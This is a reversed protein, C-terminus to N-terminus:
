NKKDAESYNRRWKREAKRCSLRLAKLEDNYWPASIKRRNKLKIEPVLRDLNSVINNYYKQYNEEVSGTPTPHDRNAFISQIMDTNLKAWKRGLRYTVPTMKRDDLRSLRINFHVLYHGTWNQILVNKVTTEAENAFVLDLTHGGQHTAQQVLQQLNLNACTQLLDRLHNGLNGNDWLNFDGVIIMRSHTLTRNTITDLLSQYHTLQGPPRYCVVGSLLSGKTEQLSFGLLEIGSVDDVKLPIFNWEERFIVGIGGGRGSARPKHLLKYGEPCAFGMEVAPDASTWTETLFLVDLDM